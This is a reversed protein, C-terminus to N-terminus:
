LMRLLERSKELCRLEPLFFCPRVEAWFLKLVQCYLAFHPKNFSIKVYIKLVLILLFLPVQCFVRCILSHPHPEGLLTVKAVKPRLVVWAFLKVPNWEMENWEM